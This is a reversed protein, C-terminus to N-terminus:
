DAVLRPAVVRATKENAATREFSMGTRVQSHQPECSRRGRSVHQLELPHHGRGVVVGADKYSEGIGLLLVVVVTSADSNIEAASNLKVFKRLGVLRRDM